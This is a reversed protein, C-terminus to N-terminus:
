ESGGIRVLAILDALNIDLTSTQLFDPHTNTLRVIIEGDSPDNGMANDFSGNSNFVKATIGAEDPEHMDDRCYETMSQINKKMEMLRNTNWNSM